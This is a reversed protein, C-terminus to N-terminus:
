KKSETIREQEYHLTDKHAQTNKVISPENSRSFSNTSMRQLSPHINM